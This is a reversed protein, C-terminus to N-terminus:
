HKVFFRRAAKAHDSESKALADLSSQAIREVSSLSREQWAARVARIRAVM